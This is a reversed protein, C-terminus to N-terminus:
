KSRVLILFPIGFLHKAEFDSWYGRSSSQENLPLLMLSLLDANDLYSNSIIKLAQCNCSFHLSCFRGNYLHKMSKDFAKLVTLLDVKQFIEGFNPQGSLNTPRIRERWLPIFALTLKLLVRDSSIDIFLPTLCPSMESGINNLIYKAM